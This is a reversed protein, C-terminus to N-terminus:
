IVCSLRIVKNGNCSRPWEDAAEAELRVRALAVEGCVCASHVQIVLRVRAVEAVHSKNVRAVQPQVHSLVRVLSWVLAAVAALAELLLHMQRHVCPRVCSLLGVSALQAPLAEGGRAIQGHVLLAVVFILTISIVTEASASRM